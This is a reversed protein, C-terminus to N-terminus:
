RIVQFIDQIFRKMKESYATIAEVLSHNPPLTESMVDLRKLVLRITTLWNSSMLYPVQRNKKADREFVSIDANKMEELWHLGKAAFQLVHNLAQFKPDQEAKPKKLEMLLQLKLRTPLQEVMKNFRGKWPQQSETLNLSIIHTHLFMPLVPREGTSEYHWVNGGLQTLPVDLTNIVISTMAKAVETAATQLIENVDRELPAAFGRIGYGAGM